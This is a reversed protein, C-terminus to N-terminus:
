AKQEFYKQIDKIIITDDKMTQPPIPIEIRISSNLTLTIKGSIVNADQPVHDFICLLAENAKTLNSIQKGTTKNNPHLALEGSYRLQNNEIREVHIGPVTAIWMELFLEQEKILLIRGRYCWSNSHKTGISKDETNIIVEIIASGTLLPQKYPSNSPFIDILVNWTPAVILFTIAVPIFYDRYIKLKPWSIKGWPVFIVLALYLTIAIFIVGITPTLLM